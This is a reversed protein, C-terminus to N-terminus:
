EVPSHRKSTILLGLGALICVSSIYLGIYIPSSGFNKEILISVTPVTGGILGMGLSYFFSTCSMRYESPFMGVALVNSMSAIASFVVSYISTYIIIDITSDYKALLLMISPACFSMLFCATIMLMKKNIRDSLYGLLPTFILILGTIILPLYKTDASTIKKLYNPLFIVAFYLSVGNAAAM